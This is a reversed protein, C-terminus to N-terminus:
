GYLANARVMEICVSGASDIAAVSPSLSRLSTRLRVREDRRASGEGGGGEGEGDRGLLRELEIGRREEEKFIIEARPPMIGATGSGSSSSYSSGVARVVAVQGYTDLNRIGAGTNRLAAPAPRSNHLLVLLESVSDWCSSSERTLVLFITHAVALLVHTLLVIIALYDTPQSALYSLGGITITARETVYYPPSSSPSPPALPNGGSLLETHFSATKNYDLLTWNSISGATNLARASGSRSLGDAVLNALTWELTVTRNLPYTPDATNWVEVETPQTSENTSRPLNDLIPSRALIMDLTTISATANSASPVRPTLLNLWTTDFTIPDWSSNAVPRFESWGSSADWSTTQTTTGIFQLSDIDNQSTITGNTWRADVSCGLVTRTSSAEDWPAEFILGASAMGFSSPLKTWTTRINSSTTQNMETYNYTGVTNWCGLEPIIPFQINAESASLNQAPSCGVRVAPIRSNVQIQLWEYYKLESLTSTLPNYPIAMVEQYWDEQLQSMIMAEALRAGIVASECAFNRYNGKLVLTPAPAFESPVVFVQPGLQISTSINIQIPGLNRVPFKTQAFDLMTSFGGSPCMAYDTAHPLSCASETDIITHGMEKPWIDGNLGRFFMAAGGADWSQDRPIILVATSPGALAALLGSIFLLGYLRLKASLPAQARFSGWLEPSWFYSLSSFLFAGGIAGLPVGDKGLLERRVTHVVISTLSAIILLEQIKSAVQLMASNVANSLISGTFTRGIFINKLNIAIIAISTICPLFHIAARSLAIKLSTSLVPKLPEAPANGYGLLTFLELGISRFLHHKKFVAPSKVKSSKPDIPLSM